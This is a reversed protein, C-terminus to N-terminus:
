AGPDIRCQQQLRDVEERPIRLGKSEGFRFALVGGHDPGKDVLEYVYSRSMGIQRAFQPVTLMTAKKYVTTM